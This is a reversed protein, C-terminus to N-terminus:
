WGKLMEARRAEFQANMEAVNKEYDSNMAAVNKEHQADLEACRREFERDVEAFDIEEISSTTCSTSTLNRGNRLQQQVFNEHLNQHVQQMFLEHAEM